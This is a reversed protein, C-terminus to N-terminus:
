CGDQETAGLVACRPCLAHKQTSAAHKVKSVSKRKLFFKRNANTFNPRPTPTGQSARRLTGTRRPQGTKTNRKTM